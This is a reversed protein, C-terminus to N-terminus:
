YNKYVAYIIGCSSFEKILELASSHESLSNAKVYREIYTILYDRYEGQISAIKGIM